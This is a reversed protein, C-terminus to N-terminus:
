DGKGRIWKSYKEVVVGDIVQSIFYSKLNLKDRVRDEILKLNSVYPIYINTEATKHMGLLRGIRQKLYTSNWPLDYIIGVNCYPLNLGFKGVDTMVLVNYRKSKEFKHLYKGRESSAPHKGSLVMTPRHLKAEIADALMDAMPAYETFIVVKEKPDSLEKLIKLTEELKPSFNKNNFYKFATKSWESKSNAKSLLRPHDCFRHAIKFYALMSRSIESKKRGLEKMKEEYDPSYMTAEKMQKMVEEYEAELKEIVNMISNYDQLAGGTLEVPREVVNPKPIDPSIETMTKRYMITQDLYKHLNSLDQELYYKSKHRLYTRKFDEFTDFIKTGLWREMTHIEKFSREFPEGSLGVKYVAPIDLLAKTRKASINKIYTCEDAILMLRNKKAMLALGSDAAQEYNAIFIRKNGRWLRRRKQPMGEIFIVNDRYFKKGFWRKIEKQWIFKLTVNTFIVTKDIEDADLMAKSYLLSVLTKGTRVDMALLCNGRSIAFKFAEIQHPMITGKFKPIKVELERWKDLKETLVKLYGKAYDEYSSYEIKDKLWYSSLVTAKWWVPSELEREGRIRKVEEEVEEVSSKDGVKKVETKKVEGLKEWSSRVSSPFESVYKIYLNKGLIKFDLFEGCDYIMGKYKKYKRRISFCSSSGEWISGNFYWKGAARTAESFKGLEEDKIKQLRPKLWSWKYQSKLRDLIKKWQPAFSTDEAKFVFEGYLTYSRDWGDKLEISVLINGEKLTQRAKEEELLLEFNGIICERDDIMQFNGSRAKVFFRKPPEPKPIIKEQVTKDKESDDVVKKIIGAFPALVKSLEEQATAEETLKEAKKALGTLAENIDEQVKQSEAITSPLEEETEKPKKKEQTMTREFLEPQPLKWTTFFLKVKTKVSESDEPSIYKYWRKELNDFKFGIDKMSPRVEDLFLKFQDRDMKATKVVLRIVVM